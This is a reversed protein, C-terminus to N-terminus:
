PRYRAPTPPRLLKKRLTDYTSKVRFEEPESWRMCYKGDPLQKILGLAPLFRRLNHMVTNPPILLEDSLQKPTAAGKELREIIARSAQYRKKKMKM